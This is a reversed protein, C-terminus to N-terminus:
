SSKPSYAVCYGKPSITGEVIKCSGNATATKGPIYFTCGSCQKGDKPTNQYKFQAQSGKAAASASSGTAVALLGALAPLVVASGVFEKRTLGKSSDKM